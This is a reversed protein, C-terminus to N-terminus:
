LDGDWGGLVDIMVNLLWIIGVLLNLMTLFYLVTM